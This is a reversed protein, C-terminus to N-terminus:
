HSCIACKERMPKVNLNNQNQTAANKKLRKKLAPELLDGGREVQRLERDTTANSCYRRGHRVVGEFGHIILFMRPPFYGQWPESLHTGSWLRGQGPLM